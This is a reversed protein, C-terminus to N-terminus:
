GAGPLRKSISHWDLTLCYCDEEAKSNETVKQMEEIFQLMTKKIKEEDQRSITILSTLSVGKTSGVNPLQQSRWNLHHNTISPHAKPLYFHRQLVELGNSIKRVIALDELVDLDNKVEEVSIGLREAIDTSGLKADLTLMMHVASTHWLNYYRGDAQIKTGSHKRLRELTRFRENRLRDIRQRYFKKLTTNGSRALSLLEMFYEKHAGGLGLFEAVLVGQELSFEQSGTLVKTVVSKQINIREALRAKWGRKNKKSIEVLYERLNTFDFIEM